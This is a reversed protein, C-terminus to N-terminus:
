RALEDMLNILPKDQHDMMHKTKNIWKAPSNQLAMKSTQRASGHERGFLFRGIWPDPRRTSFMFSSILSTV